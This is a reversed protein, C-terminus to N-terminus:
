SEMREVPYEVRSIEFTTQPEVRLLIGNPKGAIRVKINDPQMRWVSGPLFAEPGQYGTMRISWIHHPPNVDEFNVITDM